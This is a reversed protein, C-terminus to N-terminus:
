LRRTPSHSASLIAGSRHWGAPTNPCLDAATLRAAAITVTPPPHVGSHGRRGHFLRAARWLPLLIALLHCGSRAGLRDGALVCLLWQAVREDAPPPARRVKLVSDLHKLFFGTVLGVSSM